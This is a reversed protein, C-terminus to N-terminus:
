PVQFITDRDARALINKFLLELLESQYRKQSLESYRSLDLIYGTIIDSKIEDLRLPAEGDCLAKVAEPMGGCVLFEKFLETFVKHLPEAIPENLPLTKLKKCAVPKKAMLFEEFSM